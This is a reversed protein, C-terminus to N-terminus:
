VPTEVHTVSAAATSVDTEIHAVSAAATSRYTPLEMEQPDFKAPLLIYSQTGHIYVPVEEYEGLNITRDASLAVNRINKKKSLYTLMIMEGDAEAMDDEKCQKKLFKWWRTDQLYLACTTDQEIASVLEQRSVTTHHQCCANYTCTSSYKKYCKPWCYCLGQWTIHEKIPLTISVSGYNEEVTMPISIINNAHNSTTGDGGNGNADNGDNGDQIPPTRNISGYNEATTIQLSTNDRQISTTGGGDNGNVNAKRKM